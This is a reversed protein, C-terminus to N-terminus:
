CHFATILLPQVIKIAQQVSFYLISHGLLQGVLEGFNDFQKM